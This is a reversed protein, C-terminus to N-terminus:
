LKGNFNEGKLAFFVAGEPCVRSDTTVESHALFIQYLDKIEM